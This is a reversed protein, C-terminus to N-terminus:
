CDSAHAADGGGKQRQRSVTDHKSARRRRVVSSSISSDSDDSDSSDSDELEQIHEEVTQPM